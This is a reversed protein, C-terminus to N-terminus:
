FPEDGHKEEERADVVRQWNATMAALEAKLRAIEGCGPSQRSRAGDIEGTERHVVARSGCQYSHLDAPYGTESESFPVPIISGSMGCDPCTTHTM